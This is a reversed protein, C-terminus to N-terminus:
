HIDRAVQEKAMHDRNQSTEAKFRTELSWPLGWSTALAFHLLAASSTLREDAFRVFECNIEGMKLNAAWDDDFFGGQAELRKTSKRTGINLLKLPLESRLPESNEKM